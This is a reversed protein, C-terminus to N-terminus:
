IWLVLIRSKRVELVKRDDIKIGSYLRLRNLHQPIQHLRFFRDLFDWLTTSRLWFNWSHTHNGILTLNSRCVPKFSVSEAPQYQQRTSVDFEVECFWKLWVPKYIRNRQKCLILTWMNHNLQSLQACLKSLLYLIHGSIKKM